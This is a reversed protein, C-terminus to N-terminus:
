TSIPAPNSAFRRSKLRLAPQEVYRYSALAVLIPLGLRLAVAVLSDSGVGLNTLAVNIPWDWLYVGYSIKGLSVLPAIQMLRPIPARSDAVAALVIVAAAFEALPIGVRFAFATKPNSVLVLCVLLALAAPALVRLATRIRDGRIGQGQAVAAALACGLLLGDSHLDTGPYAREFAPVDVAMAARALIVVFAVLGPVIVLWRRSRFSLLALLVAPWVLYFQWEISLSWVHLLPGDTNLWGFASFWNMTYTVATLLVPWSAFPGCLVILIAFAPLLRLARRAYFRRLDIGGASQWERLLISTILFGSLVFFIDVGLFGGQMDPATDLHVLMVGLVAIGRLGDLAPLHGVFSSSPIERAM